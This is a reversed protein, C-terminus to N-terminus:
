ETPTYYAGRGQRKSKEVKIEKEGVVLPPHNKSHLGRRRSILAQQVQNFLDDDIIPKHHNRKLVGKHYVYGCYAPNHLIHHVTLEHFPNGEPYRKTPKTRYGEKSLTLAVDLLGFRLALNFAMRVAEAEKPNVVLRHDKTDMDYGYPPRSMWADRNDKFIQDHSASVREGIQESELEALASSLRFIFRGMATTTDFGYDMAVFDRDNDQLTRFWELAKLTNRWFRSLYLAVVVDWKDMEAMMRKYEPRGNVAHASRGEDVYIDVMTWGKGAIFHEIRDRQVDLSYGERAQDETSVRVVIAIFEEQITAPRGVVKEGVPRATENVIRGQLDM